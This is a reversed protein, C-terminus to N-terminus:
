SMAANEGSVVFACVDSCTLSASSLQVLFVAFLKNKRDLCFQTGNAGGWAYSGEGDM